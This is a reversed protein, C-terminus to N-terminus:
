GKEIRAVSLIVVNKVPANELRGTPLPKYATEVAGIKEVVDMGETVKGFVAHGPATARSTSARITRWTSSSSAPLRTLRALCADWRITGRETKLGNQWENAIAARAEKEELKTTFGGGQILFGTIVRHFVTGDYFGSDAYELFNAVSVPAHKTDLEITIKGLSTTMVVSVPAYAEADAAAIATFLAVLEKESAM